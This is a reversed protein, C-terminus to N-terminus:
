STSCPREGDGSQARVAAKSTSRAVPAAFMWLAAKQEESFASPAIIETQVQELSAGRGLRLRIREQVEVLGM